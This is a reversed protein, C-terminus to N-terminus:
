PSQPEASSPPIRTVANRAHCAHVARRDAVATKIIAYRELATNEIEATRGLLLKGISTTSWSFHGIISQVAVIM